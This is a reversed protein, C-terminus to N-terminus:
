LPSHEQKAALLKMYANYDKDASVSCLKDPIPALNRVKETSVYKPQCDEISPKHKSKLVIEKQKTHNYFMDNENRGTQENNEKVEQKIRIKRSDVHKTTEKTRSHREAKIVDDSSVDAVYSPSFTVANSSEQVEDGNRRASSSDEYQKSIFREESNKSEICNSYSEAVSFTIL